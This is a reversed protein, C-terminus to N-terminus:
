IPNWPRFSANVNVRIRVLIEIIKDPLILLIGSKKMSQKKLDPFDKM